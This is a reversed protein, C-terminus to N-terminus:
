YQPAALEQDVRLPAWFSSVVMARVDAERVFLPSVVLKSTCYSFVNASWAFTIALALERSPTTSFSNLTVVPQNLTALLLNPVPFLCTTLRLRASVAVLKGPAFLLPYPLAILTSACFRVLLAVSAAPRTSVTNMASHDSIRIDMTPFQSAPSELPSPRECHDLM